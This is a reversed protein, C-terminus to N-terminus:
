LTPTTRLLRTFRGQKAPDLHWSGSSNYTSNFYCYAVGGNAQLAAYTRDLWGPDVEASEHTYGTEALGWAVDHKEAFVRFSPFYDRGLLTHDEFSTGDKQVGYKNYVDFGLLDIETHRPWLADLAYERKGFLQNWGTLIISYAVNPATRRVIPALREQMERWAVIDGDGEPEHHLALWVPGDLGALREALSRVWEDGAGDRMQEWSYPLKFSMWPIRQSRLDESATRVAEDVDEPGWYTRRVGLRHGMSREWETPDDNGGFSAGLLTGCSPIGRRDYPCGNSLLRVARRQVPSDPVGRVRQEPGVPALGPAPPVDYAVASPRESGTDCATLSGLGVAGVLVAALRGAARRRRGRPATPDTPRM